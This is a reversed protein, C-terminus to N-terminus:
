TEREEGWPRRRRKTQPPGPQKPAPKPPRLSGPTIVEHRRDAWGPLEDLLRQQCVALSVDEIVREEGAQGAPPRCYLRVRVGPLERAGIYSDTM